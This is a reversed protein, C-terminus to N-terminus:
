RARQQAQGLAEASLLTKEGIGGPESLFHRLEWPLACLPPLLHPSPCPRQDQLRPCHDISNRGFVSNHLFSQRRCRLCSDKRIPLDDHKQCTLEENVMQVTGNTM